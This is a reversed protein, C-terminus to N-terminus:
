PLDIQASDLSAMHNFFAASSQLLPLALAAGTGEGLRLQLDLLPEAVLADLMLQHGQEHSRHAFIMYDRAAPALRTTLLAAATAIFGDVVVIAGAEATALMAGAMQGIEFGGVQRLVELPEDSNFRACAKEIVAIKKALQADDIGTGRGAAVSPECGLFKTVMAAAATTNGIGMEGCAIINAGIAIRERAIEAGLALSQKAQELTMAAEHAFNATGAGIRQECYHPHKCADALPTKIGADVVWLDWGLQAAFCNIAAGGALFNQVMLQTVESPAISVGENAVGHDAAFLLVTPSKIDIPCGLVLALQHAVSELCGLSGTPKTKGDIIAQIAVAHGLDLPTVSFM